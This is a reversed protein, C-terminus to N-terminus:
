SREGERRKRADGDLKIKHWGWGGFIKGEKQKQKQKQIDWNIKSSTIKGTPMSTQLTLAANTFRICAHIHVREYRVTHLRSVHFWHLKIKNPNTYLIQLCPHKNKIKYAHINPKTPMSTKLSQARQYLTFRVHTYVNVGYPRWVHFRMWTYRYLKNNKYWAHINTVSM